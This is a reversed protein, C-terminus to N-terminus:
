LRQLKDPAAYRILARALAVVPDIIPIDMFQSESLALPLETCGLIIAQAGQTVLHHAMQLVRQRTQPLVPSIAKIGWQPHYIAEQLGEQESEPVQLIAKGESELLQSYLGTLRTGTTSLVGVKEVGPVVQNLYGMTEKLMHLVPIHIGRQNIEDLFVTYIQPAHFTNCPIGGVAEIEGELVRSSSTGHLSDWAATFLRAMGFAPNQNHIGLLFDTRDPVDSSRSFHHVSLHTQDRGDTITNEIIKQHLAVGAMPGVGGGIIIIKEAM